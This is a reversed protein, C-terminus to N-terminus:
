FPAIIFSYKNEFEPYYDDNQIQTLISDLQGENLVTTSGGGSVDITKVHTEIAQALNIYRFSM